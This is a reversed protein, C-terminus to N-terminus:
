LSATKNAFFRRLVGDIAMVWNWPLKNMLFFVTGRGHCFHRTAPKAKWFRNVSCVYDDGLASVEHWWALPIFLIDGRGIVVEIKHRLAEPYKPFVGLDPNDTDVQSFWPPIDAFFPFPYLNATQSPPFLIVKKSGHLQMLTGDGTDFHLPETHGSPGLWLNLDMAPIMREMDCRREIDLVPGRITDALPTDGFAVQAMYINQEHASRDRLMQAYENYPYEKFDSYKKWDRKPKQRYDKGYIRARYKNNGLKASLLDLTWDEVGDFAGTIVVPRGPVRYTRYFDKPTISSLPIRELTDNTESM